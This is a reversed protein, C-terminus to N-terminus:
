YPLGANKLINDTPTVPNSSNDRAFFVTFELKEQHTYIRDEFKDEFNTYHFLLFSDIADHVFKVM